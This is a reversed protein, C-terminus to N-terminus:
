NEPEHPVQYRRQVPQSVSPAAFIISARAPDKRRSTGGSQAKAAKLSSLNSCVAVTSQDFGLGCTSRGLVKFDM